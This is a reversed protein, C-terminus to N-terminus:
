MKHTYVFLFQGLYLCLYIFQVSSFIGNKRKNEAPYFHRAGVLQTWGHPIFVYDM